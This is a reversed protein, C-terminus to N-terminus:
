YESEKMKANPALVAIIRNNNVSDFLLTGAKGGEKISEDTCTVLIMYDNLLMGSLDLSEFSIIPEPMTTKRYLNVVSNATYPTFEKFMLSASVIVCVPDAGGSNPPMCQIRFLCEGNSINYDKTSLDSAIVPVVESDGVARLFLDAYQGPTNYLNLKSQPLKDAFFVDLQELTKTWLTRPVVSVIFGNEHWVTKNAFGNLIASNRYEIERGTIVFNNFVDLKKLDYTAPLDIKITDCSVELWRHAAKKEQEPQKFPNERRLQEILPDEQCGCVGMLMVVASIIILIRTLM